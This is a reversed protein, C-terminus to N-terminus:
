DQVSRSSVVPPFAKLLADLPLIPFIEIVGAIELLPNTGIPQFAFGAETYEAIRGLADEWSLGVAVPDSIMLLQNHSGNGSSGKFRSRHVYVQDMIRKKMAEVRDALCSVKLQVNFHMDNSLRTATALQAALEVIDEGNELKYALQIKVEEARQVHVDVARHQEKFQQRAAEMADKAGCRKDAKANDVEKTDLWLRLEAEAGLLDNVSSQLTRHLRMTAAQVLAGFYFIEFTPSSQLKSLHSSSFVKLPLKRFNSLKLNPFM